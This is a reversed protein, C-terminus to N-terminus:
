RSMTVVVDDLQIEADAADGSADVASFLVEGQAGPLDVAYRELSTSSVTVTASPGLPDDALGVRLTTAGSLSRAKFAVHLASGGEIVDPDALAAVAGTTDGPPPTSGATTKMLLSPGREAGADAPRWYLHVGPGSPDAVRDMTSGDYLGQWGEVDDDFRGNVLRNDVRVVVVNDLLFAAADAPDCVTFLLKPGDSPFDLETTHQKWSGTLVTDSGDDTSFWPRRVRMCSSGSVSKADYSVRVRSSEPLTDGQLQAGFTWGNPPSGGPDPITIRLAHGSGSHVPDSDDASITITGLASWGTTSGSDFSSNTALNRVRVISVDDLEFVADAVPAFIATEGPALASFVIGNTFTNQELTLRYRQWTGDIPVTQRNSGGSTRQANIEIPGAVLSRASFEARVGEHADLPDVVARAGTRHSYAVQPGPVEVDVQLAEGVHSLAVDADGNGDMAIWGTIGLDFSGNSQRQPGGRGHVDETSALDVLSRAEPTGCDGEGLAAADVLDWAEIGNYGYVVRFAKADTSLDHNPVDVCGGSDNLGALTVEGLDGGEIKVITHDATEAIWDVQDAVPTADALPAHPRLLSDFRLSESGTFTDDVAFSVRRAYSTSINFGQDYAPPPTRVDENLLTATASSSRFAVLLDKPRNTWHMLFSPAGNVYPLALATQAGVAWAGAANEAAVATFNWAPGIVGDFPGTADADDRVWLGAEGLFLIRRQADFPTGLHGPLDVIAYGFDDHAVFNTASANPTDRWVEYGVDFRIRMAGNAAHGDNAEHSLEIACVGTDRAGASCSGGSAFQDMAYWGELDSDFHYEKPLNTGTGGPDNLWKVEVDDILFEADVLEYASKQFAHLAAFMISRNSEGVGSYEHVVVYTAWDDSIEARTNGSSLNPRLIALTKSGSISKASFTVEIEGAGAEQHPSRAANKWVGRGPAPPSVPTPAIGLTNHFFADKAHYANSGLLVSGQSVWTNVGGADAHGHPGSRAAGVAVFSQDEDRGSRFVVKDPATGPLMAFNAGGEFITEHPSWEWANRSISLSGIEPQVAPTPSAGERAAAYAAVLVSDAFDKAMNSWADMDTQRAAAFGYLSQALWRYRGDGYASAWIELLGVYRRVGTAYGPGDGFHAMPGLASFHELTYEALAQMAPDDLPTLPVASRSQSLELWWILFEMNLAWYNNSNEAIGGTPYWDGWVADAYATAEAEVTADCGGVADCARDLADAGLASGISRNMAGREQKDLHEWLVVLWDRMATEWGSPKTAAGDRLLTYTRAAYAFTLFGIEDSNSPDELHDRHADAAEVAATAWANTGEIAFFRAARLAELYKKADNAYGGSYVGGPHWYSDAYAAYETAGVVPPALTERIPTTSRSTEYPMHETAPDWTQAHAAPVAFFPAAAAACIRSRVARGLAHFEHIFSM